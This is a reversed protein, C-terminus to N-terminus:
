GFSAQPHITANGNSHRTIDYGDFENAPVDMYNGVQTKIQVDSLNTVSLTEVSLNNAELEEPSFIENLDIDKTNGEYKVHITATM